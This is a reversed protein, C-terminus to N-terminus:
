DEPDGTHDDIYATLVDEMRGLSDKINQINKFLEGIDLNVKNEM